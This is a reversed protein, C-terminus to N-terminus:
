CFQKGFLFGLAFFSSNENLFHGLRGSIIVEGKGVLAPAEGPSQNSSGKYNTGKISM